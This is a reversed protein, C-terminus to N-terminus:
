FEFLSLSYLSNSRILILIKEAILLYAPFFGNTSLIAIAIASYKGNTNMATNIQRHNLEFTSPFCVANYAPYEATRPTRIFRKVM